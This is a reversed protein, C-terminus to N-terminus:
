FGDSAEVKKATQAKPVPNGPQGPEKFAEMAKLISKLQAPGLTKDNRLSLFIRNIERQNETVTIGSGEDALAKKFAAGWQIVNHYKDVVVGDKIIRYPAGLSSYDLQEKANHTPPALSDADDVLEKETAEFEGGEGTAINFTTRYFFKQIYSLAAGATQAGFYQTLISRRVTLHNGDIDFLKIVFVAKYFPKGGIMEISSEVEDIVVFLEAADLLPRMMYYYMDIPAYKFNAHSNEETREIGRAAAQVALVRAALAPACLKVPTLPSAETQIYTQTNTM